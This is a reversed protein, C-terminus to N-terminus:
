GPGSGPVSNVNSGTEEPKAPQQQDRAEKQRRQEDSLKQDRQADSGGQQSKTTQSM